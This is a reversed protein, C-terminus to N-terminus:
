DNTYQLVSDPTVNFRQDDPSDIISGNWPIIPWLKYYSEIVVSM